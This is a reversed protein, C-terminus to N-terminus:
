RFYSCELFIGEHADFYLPGKFLLWLGLHSPVSGFCCMPFWCFGCLLLVAGRPASGADM